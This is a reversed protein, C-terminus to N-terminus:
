EGDEIRVAGDEIRAAERREAILESVLDLGEFDARVREGLSELTILTIGDPYEMLILDRGAEYGLRERVDAPVVLRGRDGM